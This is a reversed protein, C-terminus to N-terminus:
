IINIKIALHFQYYAKIENLLLDFDCDPYDNIELKQYYYIKWYELTDSKHNSCSNCLAGGLRPVFDIVNKNKCNVCERLIPNVGFAYLLKILIIALIKKENTAKLLSIYKSVLPYILNHPSDNPILKLISLIISLVNIKNINDTLDFLTNKLHYEILTPLESDTMIFSVINGTTIFGLDGGKIKKAKLAKVSINGINTYLYVIKSTEKYDISSLVIGEIENNM